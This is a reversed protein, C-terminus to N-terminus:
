GPRKPKAEQKAKPRTRKLIRNAYEVFTIARSLYRAVFRNNIMVGQLLLMIEALNALNRVYYRALFKAKRDDYMGLIDIDETTNSACHLYAVRLMSAAQALARAVKINGASHHASASLDLRYSLHYTFHVRNNPNKLLWLEIKEVDPIVM